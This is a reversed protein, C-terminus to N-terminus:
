EVPKAVRVGAMGEVPSCRNMQHALREIVCRQRRCRDIDVSSWGFAGAFVKTDSLGEAFEAVASPSPTPYPSHSRTLGTLWANIRM